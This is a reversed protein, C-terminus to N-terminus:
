PSLNVAMNTRLQRMRRARFKWVSLVGGRLWNQVKLAPAPSDMKLLM